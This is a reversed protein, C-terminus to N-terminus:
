VVYILLCCRLGQLPDSHLLTLLFLILLTPHALVSFHDIDDLFKHLSLFKKKGKLFNDPKSSFAAAPVFYGDNM